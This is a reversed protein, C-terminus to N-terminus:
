LLRGFFRIMEHYIIAVKKTKM